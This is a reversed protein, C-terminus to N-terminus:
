QQRHIQDIELPPIDRAQYGAPAPRPAGYHCSPHCTFGSCREDERM